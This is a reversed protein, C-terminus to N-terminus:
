VKEVTIATKEIGNKIYSKKQNEWAWYVVKESNDIEQYIVPGNKCTACKRQLCELNYIDCCMSKIVDSTSNEKIFNNKKLCETLLDMNEHKQCLCTNRMNIKPQVVWFPRLRSFTVYSIPPYGSEMYKRHLKKITDTM